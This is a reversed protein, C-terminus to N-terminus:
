CASGCLAEEVVSALQDGIVQTTLLKEFTRHGGSAIRFRLAEEDALTCIAEALAQPSGMPVACVHEGPTFLERTAANDGVITPKRMAIFQFTKTSIVRAAKPVTSFHGGLCISARAIYRPLQELPIWGTLEVNTLGLDTIMREVAARRRGDGGLTFHVEPRDRLLDAARVIVDTGHLPLFASYTFVELREEDLPMEDRPYFLKEDCGVYITTIKNMPVAFTEAFYHAHAKTDTIVHAAAQCSRQDLWFALRGAPSRPRFWRRDECLTDYTSVYADLIIPKDQLAALVIAIPQGYFGAFCLEYEPRRAVFRSLGSMFRGVTGGARTSLVTVDFHRRLGNLLVRNRTYEAERGSIFV